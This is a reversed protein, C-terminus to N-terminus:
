ELCRVADAFVTGVPLWGSEAKVGDAHLSLRRLRTPRYECPVIILALNSFESRFWEASTLSFFCALPGCWACRKVERDKPYHLPSPSFASMRDLTLVKWGREWRKRM